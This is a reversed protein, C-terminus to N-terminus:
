YEPECVLASAVGCEAVGEKLKIVGNPLNKRRQIYGPQRVVREDDQRTIVPWPSRDWPLIIHIIPDIIYM